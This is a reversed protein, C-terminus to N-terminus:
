VKIKHNQPKSSHGLRQWSQNSWLLCEEMYTICIKSINISDTVTPRESFFLRLEGFSSVKQSCYDTWFSQWLSCSVQPLQPRQVLNMHLVDLLSSPRSHRHTSLHMITYGSFFLLLLMMTGSFVQHSLFKKKQAAQTVSKFLMERTYEGLKFNM